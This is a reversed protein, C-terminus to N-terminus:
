TFGVYLVNQKKKLILKYCDICVPHKCITDVFEFTYNCMNDELCICCSIMNKCGQLNLSMKIAKFNDNNQVLDHPKKDM